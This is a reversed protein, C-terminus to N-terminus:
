VTRPEKEEWLPADDDHDEEKGFEIVWKEGCAGEFPIELVDWDVDEPTDNYETPEQRIVCPGRINQALGIIAERTITGDPIDIKGVRSKPLSAPWDFGEETNWPTNMTRLSPLAMLPALSEFDVGYRGNFIHGEYHELKSLPLATGTDPEAAAAAEAIRAVIPM